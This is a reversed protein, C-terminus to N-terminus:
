LCEFFFSNSNTLRWNSCYVNLLELVVNAGTQSSEMNVVCQTRLGSSVFM